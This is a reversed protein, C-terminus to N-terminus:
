RYRALVPHTSFLSTACPHKHSEWICTLNSAVTSFTDQCWGSGWSVSHDTRSDSMGAALGPSLGYAHNGRKLQGSLHSRARGKCMGHKLLAAHSFGSSAQGMRIVHLYLPAFSLLISLLTFTNPCGRCGIKITNGNPKNAVDSIKSM